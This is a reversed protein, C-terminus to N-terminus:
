SVELERRLLILALALLIFDLAFHGAFSLYKSAHGFCGCTIDIGRAKAVITAVIFVSLLAALISLGGRHLVHFIVAVGCFTELWPLYFALRASVVWPLIKYNDIDIAFRMPDIIKIAGAYVFVAGLLVALVRWTVNRM